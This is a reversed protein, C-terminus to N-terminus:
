LCLCVPDLSLTALMCNFLTYTVLQTPPHTAPQSPPHSAPDFVSTNRAMSRLTMLEVLQMCAHSTINTAQKCPCIHSLPRTCAQACAQQIAHAHGLTRHEEGIVAQKLCLLLQTSGHTLPVARAGRGEHCQSAPFSSYLGHAILTCHLMVHVCACMQMLLCM